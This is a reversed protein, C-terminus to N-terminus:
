GYRNAFGTKQSYIIYVDSKINQLKLVFKVVFERTKKAFKCWNAGNRLRAKNKFMGNLICNNKFNCDLFTFIKLLNFLNLQEIM